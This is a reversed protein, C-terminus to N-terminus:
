AGPGVVDLLNGDPDRLRFTWLDEDVQLPEEELLDAGAERLREFAEHASGETELYFGLRASDPGVPAPRHDGELYVHVAGNETELFCLGPTVQVRLVFGLTETYFRKAREIDTVHVAITRVGGIMESGRGEVVSVVGTGEATGRRM